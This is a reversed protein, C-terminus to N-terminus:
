AEVFKYRSEKLGPVPLLLGSTNVSHECICTCHTKLGLGIPIGPHSYSEVVGYGWHLPYRLHGRAGQGQGQASLPSLSYLLVGRRAQAPLALLVCDDWVFYAQAM